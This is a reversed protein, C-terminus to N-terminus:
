TKEQVKSDLVAEAMANKTQILTPPQKHDIEELIICIYVAEHAMIYLAALEVDTDSSM